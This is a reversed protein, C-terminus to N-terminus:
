HSRQRSRSSYASVGWEVAHQMAPTGPVRGGIEDTLHQLNSELPSPQLAVQIIRAEDDTDSPSAAALCIASLLFCLWFVKMKM